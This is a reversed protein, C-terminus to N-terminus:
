WLALLAAGGLMPISFLLAVRVALRRGGLIGAIAAKSVLNAM